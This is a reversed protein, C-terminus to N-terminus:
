QEGPFERIVTCAGFCHRGTRMETEFWYETAIASGNKIGPKFHTKLLADAVISTTVKGPTKYFRLDQVVGERDVTAVVQVTGEEVKKTLTGRVLLRFIPALGSQPFPPEDALALGDYDSKVLERQEASLEAWARDFPVRSSVDTKTGFSSGTSANERDYFYFAGSSDAALSLQSLLALSFLLRRM